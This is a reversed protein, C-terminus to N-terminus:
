LQSWDSVAGVSFSFDFPKSDNEVSFSFNFPKSDNLQSPGIPRFGLGSCFWVAGNRNNHLVDAPRPEATQSNAYDPFRETPLKPNAYGPIDETRPELRKFKHLPRPTALSLTFSSCAPSFGANGFDNTCRPTPLTWHGLLSVDFRCPASNSWPPHLLMLAGSDNCHCHILPSEVQSISIGPYPLIPRM